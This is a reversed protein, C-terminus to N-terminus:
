TGASMFCGGAYLTNGSVALAAVYGGYASTNYIGQGLASWNSGNWQAINTASIGGANTFSGSAYLTNGVVALAYVAGANVNAADEVVGSGLASWNSGNWQAIDHFVQGAQGSAFSGGAYLTSGSVALALVANDLGSGLASWNADSFEGAHAIQLQSGFILLGLLPGLSFLRRNKM